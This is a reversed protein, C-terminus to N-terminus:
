RISGTVFSLLGFMFWLLVTKKIKRANERSSNRLLLASSSVLGLDTVIVLPLYWVSVVNTAWPVPSLAVALLYFLAGAIGARQEGFRVALTRIGKSRDGQIDVIGKTIERGTNSLFVMGVFFVVNLSVSSLIVASGYIFPISVCVSVLFNGPLGTRKGVTVYVMLILWASVAIVLCLINTLIAAAFGILSLAASFMLAQKPKAAGSPIPRGPENVADIERDYYDNITMSAATLTFGTIFGLVVQLLSWSATFHGSVTLVTGVVVAFGMLLCNAPRMLKLYASTDGIRM